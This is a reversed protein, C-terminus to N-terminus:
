NRQTVFLRPDGRISVSDSKARDEYSSHRKPPHIPIASDATDYRRVNNHAMNYANGSKTTKNAMPYNKMFKNSM